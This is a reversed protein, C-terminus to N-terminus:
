FKQLIGISVEHLVFVGDALKANAERTPNPSLNQYFDLLREIFWTQMSATPMEQLINASFRVSVWCRGLLRPTCALMTKEQVYLQLLAGRQDCGKGPSAQAQHQPACLRVPSLTTVLAPAHNSKWKWSSESKVYQAFFCCIDLRWIKHNFLAQGGVEGRQSGDSIERSRVGQFRDLRIPPLPFHRGGRSPALPLIPFCGGM